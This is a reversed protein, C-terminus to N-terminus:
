TSAWGLSSSIQDLRTEEDFPSKSVSVRQLERLNQPTIDDEQVILHSAVIEFLNRARLLGPTSEPEEDSEVEAAVHSFKCHGKPTWRPWVMMPACLLRWLVHLLTAPDVERGLLSRGLVNLAILDGSIEPLEGCSNCYRFFQMSKGRATGTCSVKSDIDGQDDDAFQFYSIELNVEVTGDATKMTVQFKEEENYGGCRGGPEDEVELKSMGTKFGCVTWELLSPISETLSQISARVPDPRAFVAGQMLQQAMVSCWRSSLSMAHKGETMSVQEEYDKQAEELTLGNSFKSVPVLKDYPLM